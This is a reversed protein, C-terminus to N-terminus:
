ASQVFGSITVPVTITTWSPPYIRTSTGQVIGNGLGVSGYVADCAGDASFIKPFNNIYTTGATASTNTVPTVTATFYTLLSGIKYYLGTLTSAGGVETLNVFTPTWATGQDGNSLGGFYLVWPITIAGTKDVLPHFLPAPALTSV